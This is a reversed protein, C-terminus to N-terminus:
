EDDDSSDDSDDDTGDDTGDDPTIDIDDIRWVESAAEKRAM